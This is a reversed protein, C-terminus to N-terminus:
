ETPAGLFNVARGTIRLGDSNSWSMVAEDLLYVKPREVALDWVRAIETAVANAYGLARLRAARQRRSLNGFYTKDEPDIVLRVQVGSRIKTIDRSNFSLLDRTAFEIATEKRGMQYWLVKALKKLESVDAFGSVNENHFRKESPRGTTADWDTWVVPDPFTAVKLKGDIVCRVRVNPVTIRGFERRMRLYELDKGYIFVYEDDGAETPAPALTEPPRLVLTAEGEVIRVELIVGAHQAMRYLVDWLNAETFASDIARRKRKKSAKAPPSTITRSEVVRRSIFSKGVSTGLGDWIVKFDKVAPFAFGEPDGDLTGEKVRMRLIDRIVDDIPRGLPVTKGRAWTSDLFLATQDRGKMSVTVGQDSRGSEIEDAHGVILIDTEDGPIQEDSRSVTGVHIFATARRLLDPDFPVDRFSFDLSWEDPKRHDNLTVSWQDPNVSLRRTDLLVVETGRISGDYYALQLEVATRPYWHSKGTETSM